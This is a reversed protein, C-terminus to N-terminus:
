RTVMVPIKSHTLVKNTESGLLLAAAAKRGHSAMVILDCGRATAEHVIGEWASAAKVRAAECAVEQEAARARVWGLIAAANNEVAAQYEEPSLAEAYVFMGDSVPLPYPKVVHLATLKAGLARALGIAALAAEESRESGDTALM